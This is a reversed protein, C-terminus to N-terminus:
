NNDPKLDYIIGNYGTDKQSLAKGNQQVWNIIDSNTGMRGSTMFFRLERNEVMDKLKEVTLAPDNGSFGGAAMVPKGTKLIIPAATNADPVAILYKEGSNNELLFEVLADMTNNGRDSFGMRNDQGSLEPGAIPLMSQTGLAIPTCSWVAPVILLSALGLAALLLMSKGGQKKLIRLLALAAAAGLALVCLMPALVTSWAPYRSLLLLEVAATAAISVPLLYGKWGEEKYCHWLLVAACGCLAAIGPALMSLYYRHFFGAISFFLLMPALWMGWFLLARLNDKSNAKRKITLLLALMGFFAMPLLWSAQSGMEENFFRFFGTQGGENMGGGGMPRMGNDGFNGRNGGFNDPMGSPANGNPPAQMQVGNQNQNDDRMRGDPAQANGADPMNGQMRSNTGGFQGNLRQIGNYDLMLEMESNSKSGGAYPRNSAPTLDVALIWSLSVCALVLAGLALHLIRKFWPLPATFFYVCVIAPLVLFAQLTKINFGLGLLLMSLLLYKLNGREAAVMLAWAALLLMLILSSDLNNTRTVAIFIPTLSLCLAAILGAAKGFRRQVLHYLVAVSGVACLAEPLIMSWGQVGFVWGSLAQLWLGLAPKDVSIFGGPDFSVFFFNHWSTLMSKVAATYYANANGQDWGAYYTLFATLLLISFISFRIKNEKIFQLM